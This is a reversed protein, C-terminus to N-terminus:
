DAHAHALAHFTKLDCHLSSPGPSHM